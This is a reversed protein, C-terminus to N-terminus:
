ADSEGRWWALTTGARHECPCPEVVSNLGLGTAWAPRAFTLVALFWLVLTRQGARASECVTSWYPPFCLRTARKASPSGGMATAITAGRRRPTESAVSVAPIQPHPSSLVM